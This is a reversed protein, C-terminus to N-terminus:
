KGGSLLVSETRHYIAGLNSHRVRFQNRKKWDISGDIATLLKLAPDLYIAGDAVARLFLLLDTGECLLIRPGYRYEPPPSRFLSPVYAAQAHKRNWHEIIGSFKWFAAVEDRRSLLVIGGNLDTIKSSVEDYGQLRLRLGTNVNAEKNCAYIGGFNIRGAVGAKDIYGYRRMFEQFGVEQYIGGTPEPTLLTVPTKPAFRVFDGVSYQKIEWGLYDPESHGNPSIGLEAELTYGGGNRASYPQATGDRALKQSKIWRKHYTVTLAALLRDRSSTGNADPLELFVGSPKLSEVAYLALALPSGAAAVYALVKGDHTIGLFLVRREDRVRMIEAPAGRCGKLFGSMRVEPYKPYLILQANPARHLGGNDIWFFEVDAKARERVSGAMEADDTRVEGHPIINLASFDGGLYIQNKSNDNPALKKAYIRVAGHQRMVGALADLREIM